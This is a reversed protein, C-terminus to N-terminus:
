NSNYRISSLLKIEDLSPVYRVRGMAWVKHCFDVKKDGMSKYHVFEMEGLYIGVVPEETWPVLPNGEGIYVIQVLDGIKLKKKM